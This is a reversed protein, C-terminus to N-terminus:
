RESNRLRRELQKLLFSLLMVIALYIAAVTLLPMFPSYTQSRIIDGGKTLDELAIYGAVSTEKLLVIFENGLAPLVNKFAQPIIIHWMTQIYNFGLSRGAEMQGKDVAEIGSRVTEAMYAGGFLAIGLVGCSEANMPLGLRPLAFYMFFLQVMLPTNRFLEIYGRTFQSLVPIKHQRILAAIFGIVISLLIGIWGIKLTLLMAKWYLPIYETIAEFNM